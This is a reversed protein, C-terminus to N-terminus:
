RIRRERVSYAITLSAYKPTYPRIEMSLRDDNRFKVRIASYNPPLDSSTRWPRNESVTGAIRTYKRSQRADVGKVIRDGPRIPSMAPGVPLSAVQM